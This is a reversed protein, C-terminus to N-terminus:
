AKRERKDTGKKATQQNTGFNPELHLPMSLKWTEDFGVLATSIIPSVNLKDHLPFKSILQLINKM